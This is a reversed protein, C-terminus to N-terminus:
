NIVNEKKEIIGDKEMDRIYRYVTNLSIEFTESTRKAINSGNEYIKELIYRKIQERKIKTFSMCEGNKVKNKNKNVIDSKKWRTFNFISNYKKYFDRLNWGYVIM